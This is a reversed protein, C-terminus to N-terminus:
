FKLNKLFKLNTHESASKIYNVNEVDVDDGAELSTGKKEMRKSRNDITNRRKFNNSQKQSLYEGLSLHM